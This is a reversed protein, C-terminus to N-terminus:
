TGFGISTEASSQGQGYSYSNWAKNTATNIPTVAGPSAYNTVYATKGNPTIAIAWVGGVKIAKLAKSTATNIPTM